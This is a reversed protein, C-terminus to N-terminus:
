FLFTPTSSLAPPSWQLDSFGPHLAPSMLGHGFFSAYTGLRELLLKTLLKKVQEFDAFHTNFIKIQEFDAFYSPDFAAMQSAAMGSAAM